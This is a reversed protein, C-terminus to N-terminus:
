RSPTQGRDRIADNASPTQARDRIAGNVPQRGSRESCLQERAAVLDSYCSLGTTEELQGLLRGHALWEPPKGAASVAAHSSWRWDSARVCLSAALPNAVIYGVTRVLAGDSTIRPSKYRTEFLHGTRAHRINFGRAYRGHLLQMGNALNTEPTEILLHVHNPMLCYSLLHWRQRETVAALLATYVRLDQDDVFIRRRDVGRAIVHYTAGAQENRLRPAM